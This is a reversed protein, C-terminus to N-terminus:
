IYISSYVADSSQLATDLITATTPLFHRPLLLPKNPPSIAGLVEEEELVGEVWEGGGEGGGREGGEEKGVEGEGLPSILCGGTTVVVVVVKDEEEELVGEVCEEGGEM